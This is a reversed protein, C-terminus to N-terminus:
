VDFCLTIRFHPFKTFFTAGVPIALPSSMPNDLQPSSSIVTDKHTYRNKM